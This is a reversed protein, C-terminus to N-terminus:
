GWQFQKQNNKLNDAQFKFNQSTNTLSADENRTPSCVQASGGVRPNFNQLRINMTQHLFFNSSNVHYLSTLVSFILFLYSRFVVSPIVKSVLQLWSTLYSKLSVSNFTLDLNERPSSHQSNRSVKSFNKSLM